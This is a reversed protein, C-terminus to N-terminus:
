TPPPAPRRRFLRHGYGLRCRAVFHRREAGGLKRKLADANCRAFSRQGRPGATAAPAAPLSQRGTVAGPLPAGAAPPPSTPRTTTQAAPSQGHAAIPGLLIAALLAPVIVLCRQAARPGPDPIQLM